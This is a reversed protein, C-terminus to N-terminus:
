GACRFRADRILEALGIRGPPLVAALPAAEAHTRHFESFKTIDIDGVGDGDTFCFHRENKVDSAARRLRGGMM